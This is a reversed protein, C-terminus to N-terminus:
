WSSFKGEKAMEAAVEDLTGSEGVPPTEGGGQGTPQAPGPQKPAQAKKGSAVFGKEWELSVRDMAADVDPPHDRDYGRDLFHENARDIADKQFEPGFRTRLDTFMGEWAQKRDAEDHEAGANELQDTREKLSTLVTQIEDLRGVIEESPKAGASASARVHAALKQYAAAIQDVDANAALEPIDVTPAEAVQPQVPAKRLEEILKNVSAGIQTVEGHLGAVEKRTQAAQQDRRQQGKDWPREEPKAPPQEGQPKPAVKSPTEGPKEPPKETPPKGDVKDMAARAADATLGVGGPIGLADSLNGAGDGTDVPAADGLTANMHAQMDDAGMADDDPM